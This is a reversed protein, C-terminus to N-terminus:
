RRDVLVPMIAFLALAMYYVTGSVPDRTAFYKRLPIGRLRVMSSEAGLRFGLGIFGMALRGSTTFPIALHLVVWRAAMITVVIMIPTEMLEAWRTGVRPVVWFTRIAGLAFGTGFVIALYILGAKLLQM